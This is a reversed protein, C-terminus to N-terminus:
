PVRHGRGVRLRRLQRDQGAPTSSSTASWPTRRRTPRATSPCSCPTSTSTTSTMGGAKLFNEEDYCGVGCDWVKVDTLGQLTAEKRMLVMQNATIAQGYNSGSAKMEQIVPTYASQPDSSRLDFDKDSKIGIDRLRM